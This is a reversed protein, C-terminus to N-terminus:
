RPAQEPHMWAPSDQELLRLGYRAKEALEQPGMQASLHCTGIFQEALHSKHLWQEKPFFAVAVLIAMTVLAVGQFFGLAGGVIRDLCSLGMWRLVRAFIAGIVAAVAMVVFAIILFGIADAIAEVRVIPLFVGAIRGYNWSALAIGFILGILSCVTRFFGQALGEAVSLAIVIMIAWDVWNM